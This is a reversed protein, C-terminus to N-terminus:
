VLKVKNEVTEIPVGDTDVGCKSWYENLDRLGPMLMLVNIRRSIGAGGTFKEELAKQVKPQRSRVLDVDRLVNANLRDYSLLSLIMILKVEEWTNIECRELKCITSAHTSGEAVRGITLKNQYYTYVIVLEIVAKDFLLKKDHYTINELFPSDNILEFCQSAASDFDKFILKTIPDSTPSQSTGPPDEEMRSEEDREYRLKFKRKPPLSNPRRDSMISRRGSPRGPIISAARGPLTVSSTDLTESQDTPDVFFVRSENDARRIVSPRSSCESPDSRRSRTSATSNVSLTVGVSSSPPSLAASSNPVGLQVPRIENSHRAREINAARDFALQPLVPFPVQTSGERESAASDQRHMPRQRARRNPLNNKKIQLPNMGASLCRDMRCKQCCKRKKIGYVDCNNNYFCIFKAGKQINRRFFGKCGECALVGFHRGTAQDSCIQCQRFPVSAPPPSSPPNPIAITDMSM